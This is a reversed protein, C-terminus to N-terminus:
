KASVELGTLPDGDACFGLPLENLGVSTRCTQTGFRGLIM